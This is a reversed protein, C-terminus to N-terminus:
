APLGSLGASGYNVRKGMEARQTVKFLWVM